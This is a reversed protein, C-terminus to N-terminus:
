PSPTLLIDIPEYLQNALQRCEAIHDRFIHLQRLKLSFNFTSRFKESSRENFNFSKRISEKSMFLQKEINMFGSILVFDNDSMFQVLQALFEFVSHFFSSCMLIISKENEKEWDLCFNQKCIVDVNRIISKRRAKVRQRSETKFGVIVKVAVM